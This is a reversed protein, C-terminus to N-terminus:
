GPPKPIEILRSEVVALIRSIPKRCATTSESDDECMKWGEEIRGITFLDSKPFFFALVDAGQRAADYIKTRVAWHGDGEITKIEVMMDDLIGDCSKVSTKNDVEPLLIIQHGYERLTLLVHREYEGRSYGFPGKQKDFRHLRHIATVGGSQEDFTVELYDPDDILRLYEQYNEERTRKRGISM